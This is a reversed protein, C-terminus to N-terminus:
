EKKFIQTDETFKLIEYPSFHVTAHQAKHKKNFYPYFRSLIGIFHM